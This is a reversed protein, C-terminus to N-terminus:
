LLEKAPDLIFFESHSGFDFVSVERDERWEKWLRIYPCSMKNMKCYGSIISMIFHLSGTKDMEDSVEAIKRRKQNDDEFYLIM